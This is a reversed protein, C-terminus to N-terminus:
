KRWKEFFAAWGIYSCKRYDSPQESSVIDRPTKSAQEGWLGRCSLKMYLASALIIVIIAVAILLITKM